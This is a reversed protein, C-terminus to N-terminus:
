AIVAADGYQKLATVLRQQQPDGGMPVRTPRAALAGAPRLRDILEALSLGALNSQDGSSATPNVNPAPHVDTSPSTPAVVKFDTEITEIAARAAERVHFIPDNKLISQLAPLGDAAAPGFWFLAYCARFRNYDYPDNLLAILGPVAPAAGARM